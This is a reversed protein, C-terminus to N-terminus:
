GAASVWGLLLSRHPSATEHIFWVERRGNRKEDDDEIMSRHFCSRAQLPIARSALCSCVYARMTIGLDNERVVGTVCYMM